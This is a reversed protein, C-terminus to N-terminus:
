EFMNKDVEEPVDMPYDGDFCATCMDCNTKGVSELLGKVSIYGLSDAGILERVEEDSKSSGVLQKRNPTDIGFFCPYKVSASSVRMHVETAGANKLADVIKRSTTGRVISDDVVVVRKGKINEKLVNLKLRVALERSEQDPQIFTRGIYKNKILGIGYPIGSEQGFGIAADIGSDPVAIVIDADVPHEKALTKGACRRSSSVSVGDIISDPRAFYVYEFICHAVRKSDDYTISEIGNEDIIVMEGNKVDRVLEAGVVDLACSESSLVLGGDPLKGICLPRLGNPDRVGILKGECVIVLAFAGKIQQVTKLISEKFGLSYNKAILNAIVETDISTQFISGSLELEDRIKDANVLNGNHTLAISGGRYNIVLPQANSVHSEGTTSYRVHGVSITGKLSELIDNNFVDQVLGMEKYHRVKGEDYAAIGASEQGRHQLSILGFAVRRSLNRSTKSFIGLVGCEDKFKDCNM